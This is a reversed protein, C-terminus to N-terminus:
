FLYTNLANLANNFRENGSGNVIAWPIHQNVLIDKYISFLEKRPQENPYERLDDKQWPLDINCLLYFDYKRDVIQELIFNDCFGFVYESWVKMVYMDTDIFLIKDEEKLDLNRCKEIAIDEAFIQGKAIKKLDTFSYNAGNIELYERAYEKCWITKYYAALQSCLSSKGTSEPGIVVIKKISYDKSYFKIL